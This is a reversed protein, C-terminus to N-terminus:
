FPVQFFSCRHWAVVKVREPWSLSDWTNAGQLIGIEGGILLIGGFYRGRGASAAGEAKRAADNFATRAARRIACPIDYIINRSILEGPTLVDNPTDEDNEHQVLPVKALPKYSAGKDEEQEIDETVYM